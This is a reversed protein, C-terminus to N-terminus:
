PHGSWARVHLLLPELNNELGLADQIEPSHFFFPLGKLHVQSLSAPLLSRGASKHIPFPLVQGGVSSCAPVEATVKVPDTVLFIIILLERSSQAQLFGRCPECRLGQLPLPPRPVTCGPYAMPLLCSRPKETPRWIVRLPVKSFPVFSDPNHGLDPHM